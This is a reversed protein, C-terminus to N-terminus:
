IVYAVDWATFVFIIRLGKCVTFFFLNPAAYQFIAQEKLSDTIHSRHGLRRERNSNNSGAKNKRPYEPLGFCVQLKYCNRSSNAFRSNARRAERIQATHMPSLAVSQAAQAIDGRWLAFPSSHFNFILQHVLTACDHELVEWWESRVLCTEGRLIHLTRRRRLTPAELISNRAVAGVGM